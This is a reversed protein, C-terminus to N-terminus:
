TTLYLELENIGYKSCIKYVEEGRKLAEKADDLTKIQSNMGHRIYMKLLKAIQLRWEM